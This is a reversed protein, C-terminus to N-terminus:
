ICIIVYKNINRVFLICSPWNKDSLKTSANYICKGFTNSNYKVIM